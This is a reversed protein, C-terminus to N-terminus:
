SRSRGCEKSKSTSIQKIAFASHYRGFADHHKFALDINIAWIQCRGKPGKHKPERRKHYSEAFNDKTNHKKKSEYNTIPMDVGDVNWDAGYKQDWTPLMEDWFKKSFPLMEASLEAGPLDAGILSLAEEARM